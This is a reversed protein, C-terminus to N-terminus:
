EVKTVKYTQIGRYHKKIEELTFEEKRKEKPADKYFVESVIKAKAALYLPLRADGMIVHNGEIERFTVHPFVEAEDSIVGKAVLFSRLFRSKTVLIKKPEKFQEDAEM